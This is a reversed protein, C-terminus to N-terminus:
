GAWEALVDPDTEPTVVGVDPNNRRKQDHQYAIIDAGDAGKRAPAKAKAQRAQQLTIGAPKSKVAKGAPSPQPAQLTLPTIFAQAGTTMIVRVDFGAKVLLRAFIASKYAAIGGTIALVINSMLM